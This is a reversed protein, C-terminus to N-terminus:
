WCRRTPTSRSAGSSAKRRTISSSTRTGPRARQRRDRRELEGADKTTEDFAFTKREHIDAEDDDYRLTCTVVPTAAFDVTTPMVSVDLRPEDDVKIMISQDGDADIFDTAHFDGDNFSTTVKYRFKRLERDQLVM